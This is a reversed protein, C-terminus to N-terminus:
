KREGFIATGIRVCDSGVAIALNLDGSMGLSLKGCGTMSAAQRLRQYLEPITERNANEWAKDSYEVPPIAMIGQLKLHPCNKAIFASLDPLESLACGQKTSEDGANVVIWVPFDHKAFERAYREIYRAHKETAVSQIEDAVRVIRQIKNSQLQGIFVWRLNQLDGLLAAKEVLEDAYNEAFERLGIEYAKRIADAPVTKSVALLRIDSDARSVDAALRAIKAITTQIRERLM